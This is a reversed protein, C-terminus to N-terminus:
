SGIVTFTVISTYHGSALAPLGGTFGLSTSWVDGGAAAAASASGILLDAAPAVPIPAFAGGALAPALDAGAPATAGLALPLDFPQFASRQATLTYGAGDNSHVTVAEALPAPATGPAVSGFSLSPHDLSISLLPQIDLDVAADSPGSGTGASCGVAAASSNVPAPAVASFDDANSDTDTCGGGSRLDATTAGLAPAAAGEYDAASGYGVLDALGPSGACSGASAGCTLPATDHVLAVKGGSAALNSTGTADPTPLVAGVAATSALQVLYSHGPQITGALATAQWSTGAAPAYQLTWGTLDVSAAGADFVVVYDNQYPAGSNGGGAFVQAVVLGSPNAAQAGPSAWALALVLPLLLLRVHRM